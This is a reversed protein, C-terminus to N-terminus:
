RWQLWETGNGHIGLDDGDPRSDVNSGERPKGNTRPIAGSGVITPDCCNVGTTADVPKLDVDERPRLPRIM